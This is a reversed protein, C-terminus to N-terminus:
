KDFEKVLRNWINLCKKKYKEQKEESVECMIFDELANLEDNSISITVKKYKNAM